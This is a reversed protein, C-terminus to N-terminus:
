LALNLRSIVSPSVYFNAPNRETGNNKSKTPTRSLRRAKTPSGSRAFSQHNLQPGPSTNSPIGIVFSLNTAPVFAPAIRSRNLKPSESYSAPSGHHPAPSLLGTRNSVTSIDIKTPTNPTAYAASSGHAESAEPLVPSTRPQALAESFEIKRISIGQEIPVASQDFENEDIVQHNTAETEITIASVASQTTASSPRVPSQSFPAESEVVPMMIPIGIPAELNLNFDTQEYDIKMSVQMQPQQELTPTQPRLLKTILEESSDGLESLRGYVSASGPRSRPASGPRLRAASGPRSRSASFPRTNASGPRSRPASGPRGLPMPGLTATPLPPPSQRHQDPAPTASERRSTLGPTISGPRTAVWLVEDEDGELDSGFLSGEDDSFGDVPTERTRIVITASGSRPTRASKVRIRSTPSDTRTGSTLLHDPLVIRQVDLLAEEPLSNDMGVAPGAGGAINHQQQQQNPAQQLHYLQQHQQFQRHTQTQRLGYSNDYAAQMTASDDEVEKWKSDRRRRADGGSGVANMKDVFNSSALVFSTSSGMSFPKVSSVSLEGAVGTENCIWQGSADRKICSVPVTEIEPNDQGQSISTTPLNFLSVSDRPTAVVRAFSGDVKRVMDGVVVTAVPRSAPATKARSRPGISSGPRDGGPSPGRGRTPGATTVRPRNQHRTSVVRSRASMGRQAQTQSASEASFVSPGRPAASGADERAQPDKEIRELLFSTIRRYVEWTAEIGPEGAPTPAKGDVATAPATKTSQSGDEQPSPEVGGQQMEHELSLMLAMLKAYVDDDRTSVELLKILGQDGLQGIYGIFAPVLCLLQSLEVALLNGFGETQPAPKRKLQAPNRAATTRTPMGRQEGTSAGDGQILRFLQQSANRLCRFLKPYLGGEIMTRRDIETASMLLAVVQVRIEPTVMFYKMTDVRHLTGLKTMELTARMLESPISFVLSSLLLLLLMNRQDANTSLISELHSGRIESITVKEELQGRFWAEHLLEAELSGAMYAVRARDVELTHKVCAPFRKMIQVTRFGFVGTLEVNRLSSRVYSTRPRKRRLAPKSEVSDFYVKVRGREAATIIQGDLAWLRPLIDIVHQRYHWDDEIPNGFLSLNMIQMHKLKHVEPWDVNNGSLQVNGLAIFREFGDLHDIVNNSLDINWLERCSELHSPATLLNDRLVLTKVKPVEAIKEM